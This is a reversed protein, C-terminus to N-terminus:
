VSLPNYITLVFNSDKRLALVKRAHSNGGEVEVELRLRSLSFIALNLGSFIASQTLCFGIGLWTLINLVFTENM